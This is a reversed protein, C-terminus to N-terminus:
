GGRAFAFIIILYYGIIMINNDRRREKEFDIYPFLLKRSIHAYVVGASIFLVKTGLLSLLGLMADRSILYDPIAFLIIIMGIFVLLDFSIRKLKNIMIKGEKIIVIINMM